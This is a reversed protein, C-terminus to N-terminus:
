SDFWINCYLQFKYILLFFFSSKELILIIYLELSMNNSGLVQMFSKLNTLCFIYGICGKFASPRVSLCVSPSVYSFQLIWLRTTRPSCYSERYFEIDYKLSLENLQSWALNLSNQIIFFIKREYFLSGSIGHDHWRTVCDFRDAAATELLFPRLSDGSIHM